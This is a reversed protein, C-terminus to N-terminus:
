GPRGAGPLVYGAGAAAVGAVMAGARALGGGRVGSPLTRALYARESALAAGSGRRRAVQAKSRGEAHCRALFYRVTGRERAVTHRVAIAPDYLIIQDPRSRGIRICLDTEECGLPRTGVRGLGDAFGGAELIAARRFSMNCGILNRVPSPRAPLGRYSCGVVWLFEEPLWRPREAEWVPVVAGGVAV